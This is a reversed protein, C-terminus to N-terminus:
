VRNRLVDITIFPHDRDISATSSRRWCGCTTCISVRERGVNFPDALDRLTLEYAIRQAHTWIADNDALHAAGLGEVHQLRHVGSM